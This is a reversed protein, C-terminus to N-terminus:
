VTDSVATNYDAGKIKEYEEAEAEIEYIERLSTKDNESIDTLDTGDLFFEHALKKDAYIPYKLELQIVHQKTDELYDITIKNIFVRIIEQKKKEDKLTYLEKAKDELKIIWDNTSEENQMLKIEDEKIQIDNFLKQKIEEIEKLQKKLEKDDILGKRALRVLNTKEDENSKLKNNLNKIEALVEALIKRTNKFKKKLEKRVLNSNVLTYLLKDWVLSNLRDINISKMGCFHAEESRKSMCFYIRFGKKESVRGILVRNCRNCFALGKLLYFHKKNNRGSFNKNKEFNDQIKKWTKADIIGQTKITEGKYIREGKYLPNKLIHEVTGQKWIFLKKSKFRTEGTYKDKIYIGKKYAKSAKTPISEENLKKAISGAGMGSLSYQVMKLYIEKEEEDIILNKNKDTTFGFATIGGSHRGQKVAELRGAKSKEVTQGIYYASMLANIDKTFKRQYDLSGFDTIEYPTYLKIKNNTFILQIKFYVIMNRALRSDDVVFIHKCTGNECLELLKKFQPRNELDDKSASKGPEDYIEYDMKLEKARKIGAKKQALLSLGKEKQQETSVRTYIYLKKISM